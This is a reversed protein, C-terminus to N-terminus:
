TGLQQPSGDPMICSTLKSSSLTILQTPIAYQLIISCEVSTGHSVLRWSGSANVLFDTEPSVCGIAASAFEDSELLYKQTKPQECSSASESSYGPSVIKWRATIATQLGTDLSTWSVQKPSAANLSVSNSKVQKQLGAIQSDLSNVSNKSSTLQSQVSTLKQHQWYYTGYGAAALLLVIVIVWSLTHPRTIKVVPAFAPHPPLPESPAPTLPKETESKDDVM